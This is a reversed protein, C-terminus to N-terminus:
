GLRFEHKCGILAIRLPFSEVSDIALPYYRMVSLISDLRNYQALEIIIGGNNKIAGHLKPQQSPYITRIERLSM